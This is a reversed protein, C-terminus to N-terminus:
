GVKSHVSSWDFELGFIMLRQKYKFGSFGTLVAPNKIQYRGM